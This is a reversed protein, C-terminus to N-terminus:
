RHDRLYHDLRSLAEPIYSDGSRYVIDLREGTHTHYLKLRYPQGPSTAEAIRTMSGPALVWAVALMAGCVKLVVRIRHM